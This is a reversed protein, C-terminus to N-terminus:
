TANVLAALDALEQSMARRRRTAISRVIDRAYRQQRLWAPAQERLLLWCLATVSEAGILQDGTRRASEMAISLAVHALDTQRLPSGSPTLSPEQFRGGARLQAALHHMYWIAWPGVTVAIALDRAPEPVAAEPAAVDALVLLVAVTSGGVAAILRRPIPDNTAAVHQYLDPLDLPAPPSPRARVGDNIPHILNM